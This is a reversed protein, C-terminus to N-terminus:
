LIFFENNAKIFLQLGFIKNRMFNCLGVCYGVCDFKTTWLKGGFDRVIKVIKKKQM